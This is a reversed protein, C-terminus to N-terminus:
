KRSFSLDEEEWVRVGPINANPGMALVVKRLKVMDVMKFGEPVSAQDMVEFKTVMRKKEGSVKPIVPIIVPVPAVQVAEIRDITKEAAELRNQEMQKEALKALREREKAAEAEAVERAKRAAEDAIRRQEADYIRCANKITDTIKQCVQTYPAYLDMIAKKAADIPRTQNMREDELKKTLGNVKQGIKSANERQEATEIKYDAIELELSKTEAVLAAGTESLALMTEFKKDM